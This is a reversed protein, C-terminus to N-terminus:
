GVAEQRGEAPTDAEGYSVVLSLTWMMGEVENAQSPMILPKESFSYPQSSLDCIKYYVKTLCLFLSSHM